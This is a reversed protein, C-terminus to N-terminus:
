SRTPARSRMSSSPWTTTRSSRRRTPISSSASARSSAARCAAGLRRGSVRRRARQLQRRRREDQGQAARARDGRDARELRAYVNAMEKGLTTPTAPQGHTRSSCRCRRRARARARAPRGRHRAAGAAPDDRRAEALMLATRSITSTRPRAPSTSSSPSARSRPCAAFREKLWYEVAKVDHNTTREIAKVRAADAARSRRARRTSRRARRRAFVAASRRDGARRCARDALRDRRARARPDPRIRQFARRLARSRPPMAATSRRCRRSPPTPNLWRSAARGQVVPRFTGM